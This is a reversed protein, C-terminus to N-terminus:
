SFFFSTFGLDSLASAAARTTETEFHRAVLQAAAACAALHTVDNSSASVEAVCESSPSDSVSASASASSSSGTWIANYIASGIAGMADITNSITAGVNFGVTDNLTNSSSSGALYAASAHTTTTDVRVEDSASASAASASTASPSSSSSSAPACAPACAPAPLSRGCLVCCAGGLGMGASVAGVEALLPTLQVGPSLSAPPTPPTNSSSPNPHPLRNFRNHPQAHPEAHFHELVAADDMYGAYWM